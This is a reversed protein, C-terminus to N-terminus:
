YGWTIFMVQCIGVPRLDIMDGYSVKKCKLGTWGALSKAERIIQRDTLPKNTVNIEYRRVWSYNSEGGFTDTVEIKIM